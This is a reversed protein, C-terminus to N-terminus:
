KLLNKQIHNHYKWSQMFQILVRREHRQKLISCIKRANKTAVVRDSWKDLTNKISREKRREYLVVTKRKCVRSFRTVAFWRHLLKSKWKNQM